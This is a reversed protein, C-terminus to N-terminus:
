LRPHPGQILWGQAALGLMETMARNNAPKDGDRYLAVLSVFACARLRFRLLFVFSALWGEHPVVEDDIRADTVALQGKTPGANGHFRDQAVQDLSMRQSVQAFAPRFNRSRRDLFRNVQCGIAYNLM